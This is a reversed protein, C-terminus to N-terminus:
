RKHKGGRLRRVQTALKSRMQPPTNSIVFTPTLRGARKNQRSVWGNNFSTVSGGTANGLESLWDFVFTNYATIAGATLADALSNTKLLAPLFLKGNRTSGSGAPNQYEAVAATSSALGDGTGTGPISLVQSAASTGGVSIDRVEASVIEATTPMQAALLDLVTTFSAQTLLSALAAAPIPTNGAVPNAQVHVGFVWPMGDNTGRLAVFATAPVILAAM